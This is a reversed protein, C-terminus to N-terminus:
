HQASGWTIHKKREHRTKPPISLDAEPLGLLACGTQCHQTKQLVHLVPLSAELLIPLMTMWLNIRQLPVAKLRHQWPEYLTNLSNLEQHNYVM